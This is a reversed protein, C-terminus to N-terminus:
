HEMRSIMNVLAGAACRKTSSRPRNRPRYLPRPTRAGSPLTASATALLYPRPRYRIFRPARIHPDLYQIVDGGHQAVVSRNANLSLACAFTEGARRSPQLPTFRLITSSSTSTASGIPHRDGDVHGLRVLPPRRRVGPARTRAAAERM